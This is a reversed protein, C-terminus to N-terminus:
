LEKYVSINNFDQENKEQENTKSIEHRCAVRGILCVFLVTRASSFSLVKGM